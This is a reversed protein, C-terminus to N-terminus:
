KANQWLEKFSYSHHISPHIFSHCIFRGSRMTGANASTFVNIPGRIRDVSYHEKWHNQTVELGCKLIVIM